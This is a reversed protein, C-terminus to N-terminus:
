WSDVDSIDHICGCINCRCFVLKGIGNYNVGLMHRCTGVNTIEPHKHEQKFQKYRIYEVPTLSYENKVDEIQLNIKAKNMKNLYDYCINNKTNKIKKFFRKFINM